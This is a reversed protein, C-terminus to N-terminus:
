TFVGQMAAVQTPTLQEGAAHLLAPESAALQRFLDRLSASLDIQSIPDSRRREAERADINSLLTDDVEDDAALALADELGFLRKAAAAPLSGAAPAGPAGGEDEGDSSGVEEWEDDSEEDGEDTHSSFPYAPILYM